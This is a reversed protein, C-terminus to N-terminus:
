WKNMPETVALIELSSAPWIRSKECGPPILLEWPGEREGGKGEGEKERKAPPIRCKRPIERGPSIGLIFV